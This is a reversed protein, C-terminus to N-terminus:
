DIADGVVEDVGGQIIGNIADYGTEIGVELWDVPDYGLVKSAMNYGLDYNNLLEDLNQTNIMGDTFGQDEVLYDIWNTPSYDPIHAYITDGLGASEISSTIIPDM